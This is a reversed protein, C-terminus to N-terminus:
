VSDWLNWGAEKRKRVQQRLSEVSTSAKTQQMSLTKIKGRMSAEESEM